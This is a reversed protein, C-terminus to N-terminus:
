NNVGYKLYDKIEEQIDFYKNCQGESSLAMVHVLSPGDAGELLDHDLSKHKHRNDLLRQVTSWPLYCCHSSIYHHAWCFTLKPHCCESFGNWM